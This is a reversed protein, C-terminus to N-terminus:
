QITNQVFQIQLTHCQLKSLKYKYQIANYKPCITNASYQMTNSMQTTTKFSITSINMYYTTFCLVIFVILHDHSFTVFKSKLINKSIVLEQDCSLVSKFKKYCTVCLFFHNFELVYFM